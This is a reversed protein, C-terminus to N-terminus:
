VPNMHCEGPIYKRVTGHLRLRHHYDRDRGDTDGQDEEINRCLEYGSSVSIKIKRFDCAKAIVQPSDTKKRQANVSSRIEPLPQEGANTRWNIEVATLLGTEHRKKHLWYDLIRLREKAQIELVEIIYAYGQM